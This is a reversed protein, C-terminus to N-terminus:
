RTELKGVVRPNDEYYYFLLLMIVTLWWMLTAVFLHLIKLEAPLDFLVTAAGICIQIVGVFGLVVSSLYLKGGRNETRWALRMSLM